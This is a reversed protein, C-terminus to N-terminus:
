DRNAGKYELAGIDIKGEQPRSSGTYDVTLGNSAGTNRCPSDGKLRFDPVDVSELLPDTFVSHSDFGTQAKFDSYSSFPINGPTGGSPLHFGNPSGTNTTYWCNNDCNIKGTGAFRDFAKLDFYMLYSVSNYFINNIISFDEIPCRGILALSGEPVIAKVTGDRNYKEGYRSGWGGQWNVATNNEIRINRLSGTVSSNVIEFAALGCNWIINNKYVLNEHFVNDETGFYQDSIGSDYIEWIKCNEVRINRCAGYITFGNGHRGHERLVGGGLYSMDCYRIIVDTTHNTTERTGGRFGCWGGFRVHLNEFILHHKGIMDVVNQHLAVEVSSFLTGPNGPAKIYVKKDTKNYYFDYNNILAASSYKKSAITEPNTIISQGFYITGVDLNFGAASIWIGDGQELWSSAGNATESGLIVPKEGTGYAGYLIMGSVSGSYAILRGRFIGGRMFLVQDGASLIASNVRAVTKWPQNLTGPYSDDGTPAVYYTASYLSINSIATLCILVLIFKSFIGSTSKM